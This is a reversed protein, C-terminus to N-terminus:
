YKPEKINLEVSCCTRRYTLMEEKSIKLRETSHREKNVLSISSPSRKDPTYHVDHLWRAWCIQMIVFLFSLPEFSAWFINHLLFLLSHLMSCTASWGELCGKASTPRRVSKKASKPARWRKKVGDFPTQYLRQLALAITRIPRYFRQIKVILTHTSLLAFCARHVM